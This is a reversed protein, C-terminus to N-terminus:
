RVGRIWRNDVGNPKYWVADAADFRFTDPQAYGVPTGVATSGAKMWAAYESITMYAGGLEDVVQLMARIESPQAGDAPYGATKFDHTYVGIVGRDQAMIQHALKRMNFKVSDANAGVNAKGTIITNIDITNNFMVMNRPARGRAAVTGAMSTDTAAPRLTAAVYYINGLYVADGVRIAQYGKEAAVYVTFPNWLNGPMAMSRAWRPSDRLDSRGAADARTHMWAPNMEIRLSDLSAHATDQIAFVNLFKSGRSWHNISHNSVEMGADHWGILKTISAGIGGGTYRDVAFITYKGSHDLFADVISDNFASVADDTQFVFAFKAGGPFPAAHRKTIYKIEIWPRRSLTLASGGHALDRPEFFNWGDNAHTAHKSLFIAIGNNTSGNAIAQVCDTMDVTVEDSYASLANTPTWDSTGGWDWYRDRESLAPVWKDSTAEGYGYNPSGAYNQVQNTWGCKAMYDAIDTSFERTSSDYLGKHQWWAGDAARDMLTATFTDNNAAFWGITRFHLTASVITANAPVDPDFHLLLPRVNPAAAASDTLALFTGAGGSANFYLRNDNNADTVWMSPRAAGVHNTDPAAYAFQREAHTLAYVSDAAAVAADYTDFTHDLAVDMTYVHQVTDWGASVSAGAQGHAGLGAKLGLNM